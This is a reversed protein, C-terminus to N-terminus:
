RCPRNSRVSSRVAGASRFAAARRPSRGASIRARPACARRRCGTLRNLADVGSACIQAGSNLCVSFCKSRRQWPLRRHAHTRRADSIAPLPTSAGAIRRGRCTKSRSRCSDRLGCLGDLWEPWCKIKQSSMPSVSLTGSTQQCDATPSRAAATPSAISRAM